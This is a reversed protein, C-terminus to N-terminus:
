QLIVKKWKMGKEGTKGRKENKKDKQCGKSLWKQQVEEGKNM